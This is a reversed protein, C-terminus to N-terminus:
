QSSQAANYGSAKLVCLAQRVTTLRPRLLQQSCHNTPFHFRQDLGPALSSIGPGTMKASDIDDIRSNPSAVHSKKRNSILPVSFITGRIYLNQCCINDLISPGRTHESIAICKQIIGRCKSCPCALNNPTLPSM